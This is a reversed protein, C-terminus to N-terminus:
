PRETLDFMTVVIWDEIFTTDVGPSVRSLESERVNDCSSPAARM